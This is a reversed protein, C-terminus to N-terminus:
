HWSPEQHLRGTAADLVYQLNVDQSITLVFQQGDSSWRWRNIGGPLPLVLDAIERAQSGDGQALFLIYKRPSSITDVLYALFAGDPSWAGGYISWGEKSRLSTRTGTPIDVIEGRWNAYQDAAPSVAFAGGAWPSMAYPMACETGAEPVFKWQVTDFVMTESVGYHSSTNFVGYHQDVTWGKFWDRELRGDIYKVRDNEWDILCCHPYSHTVDGEYFVTMVTFREENSRVAQAAAAQCEPDIQKPLGGYKWLVEHMPSVQPPCSMQSGCGHPVTLLMEGSSADGVRVAARSYGHSILLVGTLTIGLLFLTRSRFGAYQQNKM